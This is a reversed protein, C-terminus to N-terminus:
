GGTGGKMIKITSQVCKDTLFPLIALSTGVGAVLGTITRLANTSTRLGCLQTMGDLALPAVLVLLTRTSISARPIGSFLYLLSSLLMASYFAFCRACIALRVGFLECCRDPLQHCILGIPWNISQAARHWGQMVCIPELVSLLLIFGTIAAVSAAM